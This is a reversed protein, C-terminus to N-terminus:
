INEYSYYDDDNNDDDDDDDVGNGNGVDSRDSHSSPQVDFKGGETFHLLHSIAKQFSSSNNSSPNRLRHLSSIREFSRRMMWERISELSCFVCHRRAARDRIEWLLNSSNNELLRFEECISQPFSGLGGDSSLRAKKADCYGLCFIWSKPFM